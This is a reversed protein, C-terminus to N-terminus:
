LFLPVIVKHFHLLDVLFGCLACFFWWQLEPLCNKNFNLLLKKAIKQGIERGMCVRTFICTVYNSCRLTKPDIDTDPCSCM